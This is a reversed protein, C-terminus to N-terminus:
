ILTVNKKVAKDLYLEYGVCSVMNFFIYLETAKLINVSYINM